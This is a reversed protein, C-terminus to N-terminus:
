AQARLIESDTRMTSQAAGGCTEPSAPWNSGRYKGLLWGLGVVLPLLMRQAFVPPTM